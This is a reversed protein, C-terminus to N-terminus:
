VIEKTMLLSNSATILYMSVMSFNEYQAIPPGLLCMESRWVALSNPTIEREMGTDVLAEVEAVIVVVTDEVTDEMAMKQIVRQIVKVTNATDRGLDVAAAEAETGAGCEEVATVGVGWPNMCKRTTKRMKETKMTAMMTKGTAAKVSVGDETVTVGVTVLTVAVKGRGTTVTGVGVGAREGGAGGQRSATKRATGGTAVSMGRIEEHAGTAVVIQIRGNETRVRIRRGEAKGGM